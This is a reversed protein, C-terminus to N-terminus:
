GFRYHFSDSPSVNEMALSTCHDALLPENQRPIFEQCGEIPNTPLRAPSSVILIFQLYHRSVVSGQAVGVGAGDGVGVVTIDPCLKNQESSPTQQFNALTEHIVKGGPKWPLCDTIWLLKHLKQIQQQHHCIIDFIRGILRMKVHPGGVNRLFFPNTGFLAAFARVM